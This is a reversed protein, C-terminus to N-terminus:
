ICRLVNHELLISKLKFMITNFVEFKYTFLLASKLNFGKLFLEIKKQVYREIQERYFLEKKTIKNRIHETFSFTFEMISFEINGCFEQIKM